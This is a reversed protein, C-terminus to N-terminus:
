KRKWTLYIGVIAGVLVVPSLRVFIWGFAHLAVGVVAREPDNYDWELYPSDMKILLIFIAIIAVVLLVFLVIEKKRKANRSLALQM